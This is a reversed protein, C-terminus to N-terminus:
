LAILFLIFLVIGATLILAGPKRTRIMEWWMWLGTAGWLLISLIVGDVILAWFDNAFFDQDYGRRRHLMELFYTGEFKQQEVRLIGPETEYTIRYAGVPKNRFVRISGQDLNGQVNFGGELGLHQLIIQAAAERDENGAVLTFPEEKVLDYGPDVREHEGTLLVRHHMALTSLAYMLIWPTLFLALFM